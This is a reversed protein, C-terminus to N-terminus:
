GSAAPLRELGQRGPNGRALHQEEDLRAPTYEAKGQDVGTDPPAGGHRVPRDEGADMDQDQAILNFLAGALLGREVQASDAGLDLGAREGIGVRLEREVELHGAV